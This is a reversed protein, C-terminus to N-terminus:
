KKPPLVVWGVSPKPGDGGVALSRARAKGRAIVVVTTGRHELVWPPSDLSERFLTVIDEPSAARGVTFPLVVPAEGDLAITVTFRYAPVANAEPLSGFDIASGCSLTVVAAVVIGPLM